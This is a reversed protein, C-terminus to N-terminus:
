LSSLVYVLKALAKACLVISSAIQAHLVKAVFRALVYSELCRRPNNMKKIEIWPWITGKQILVPTKLFSSGGAEFVTRM